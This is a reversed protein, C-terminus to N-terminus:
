LGASELSAAAQVIAVSEMGAIKGIHELVDHQRADEDM